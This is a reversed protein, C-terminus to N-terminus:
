NDGETSKSKPKSWRPQQILSKGVDAPVDITDGPEVIGYGPLELPQDHVNRVNM